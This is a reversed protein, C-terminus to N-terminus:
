DWFEKTMMEQEISKVTDKLQNTKPLPATAAFDNAIQEGFESKLYQGKVLPVGAIHAAAVTTKSTRRIAELETKEIHEKRMREQEAKKRAEEERQLQALEAADPGKPKAKPPLAKGVTGKANIDPLTLSQRAAEAAAESKEAVKGFLQSKM